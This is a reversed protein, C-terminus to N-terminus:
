PILELVKKYVMSSEWGRYLLYDALKKRKKFRDTETLQNFRKNSLIDFTEDYLQPDLTKIAARINYDSVGRSKLERSIRKKGWKKIKFKGSTFALAFRSENLFDHELLHLIIVEQAAPIMNMERLKREIELHCREQYICYRELKQKAEDLTYSKKKM